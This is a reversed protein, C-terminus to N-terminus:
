IYKHIEEMGRPTLAYFADDIVVTRCLLSLWGDRMLDFLDERNYTEEAKRINIGDEESKSVAKLIDIQFPTPAALINGIEM